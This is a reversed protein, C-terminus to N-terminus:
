IFTGGAAAFQAQDQGSPDFRLVRRLHPLKKGVQFLSPHPILSSPHPILSSLVVSFISGGMKRTLKEDRM